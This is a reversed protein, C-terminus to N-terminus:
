CKEWLSAFAKFGHGQRAACFSRDRTNSDSQREYVRMILPISRISRYRGRNRHTGFQQCSAVLISRLPGHLFFLGIARHYVHLEHLAPSVSAARSTAVSPSATTTSQYRARVRCATSSSRAGSGDRNQQWTYPWTNIQPAQHLRKHASRWPELRIKLGRGVRM